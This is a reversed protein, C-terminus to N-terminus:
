LTCLRVTVPLSSSMCLGMMNGAVMTANMVGRAGHGHRRPSMMIEHWIAYGNGDRKTHRKRQALPSSPTYWPTYQVHLDSRKFFGGGLKVPPGQADFCYIIFICLPNRM